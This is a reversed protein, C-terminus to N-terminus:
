KGATKPADNATVSINDIWARQEQPTFAFFGPCGQTHATKHPVEIAWPEPEAEGKPWAKARVVGSGDAAVDVRAKLRYWQNPSVKFPVSERIREQNSSVELQQGNGKMVILYRQNILGIESMKRRNGETMVDAEITYNRSTPHGIFIQGRQFLKHDITKCLAKNEATAADAAAVAPAKRIEFRFRTGNWPLPPYAFPTPPEVVNWNTPGPPPAAAPTTPVAPSAAAIAVEPAKQAGASTPEAAKGVSPAAAPSLGAAAQSPSPVNDAPPTGGPGPGTMQNIEFAEFDQTVPVDPMVRGRMTGKLEGMTAMFAGASPRREEAATLQGQPNFTANMEAKVLATPPVYSAFTIKSPDVNEEVTFGNADLARVRIQAMEGPRLLPENPILQLRAAPGAPPWSEEKAAQVTSASQNNGKTGFCYLKRDTQVYLKGNYGIPSGYCRGNLMTRSLIQADKEGPKLVLLEGNGGSEAGEAVPAAGDGAAQAAAIYLAVYLKGDAFFPSSQRQEPAVKKRWVIKGSDADICAIEGIGTVEYMRNGAVCPSSALNGLPNRWNELEKATFVQPKGPEPAQLNQPLKYSASRGVESTDINESEHIVLLNDKYRLVQANIGGKAGAKAAPFRFLPDGTRANIGVITSDGGASILVRKGDIWTLLPHSFTNDQPREGPASTWVLEGTKKDFAYFRDGAPGHAGWNSTIGRTIVLEKDIVPSATRANPFTLRGFQEMMSHEWLKKGDSTFCALIGQTGQMYVNGTEPDISPASTAYRLYIIDSLFDNFRHQWLQKGTEADFCSIAEQVDGGEGVYGNIYLKGNGIVPASQGPFDATWLASKADVKEPLGTEPSTGNQAPGRWDLWGVVAGGTDAAVPKPDAAAKAPKPANAPKKPAALLASVGFGLACACCSLLRLNM